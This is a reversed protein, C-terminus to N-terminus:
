VRLYCTAAVYKSGLTFTPLLVAHLMCTGAFVPPWIVAWKGDACNDSKVGFLIEYNHDFANVIRKVM